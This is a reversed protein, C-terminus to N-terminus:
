FVRINEWEGFLVLSPVGGACVLMVPFDSAAADRTTLRNIQRPYVM